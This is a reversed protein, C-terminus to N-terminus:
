LKEIWKEFWQPLLSDKVEKPLHQVASELHQEFSRNMMKQLEKLPVDRGNREALAVQKLVEIYSYALTLTLSSAVAGTVMGGTVTGLGPVWKFISGVLYKGIFSMGSTGGLGMIMSILQSKDLSIGFIATLHALMTLQMPVLLASDAIPIPVFGIGFATTVYTNAWSRAHKIKLDLDVHQANIFAKHVDEPVHELTLNLLETLGYAEILAQKPLAYPKALIPVIGKIPLQHQRIVQELEHNEPNLTQTLVIIVPLFEALTRILEMEFEEIRSGLANICYYVAHIRERADGQKKETILDSLDKLIHRQVKQSLELGMTDYLTLPVGPKTIRVLEDTIPLGVGTKALNERFMANILTSKGSGTKGAVILNLPQMKEVEDATKKLLEDIAKTDVKRKFLQTLKKMAQGKRKM